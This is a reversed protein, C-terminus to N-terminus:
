ATFWWCQHLMQLSFAFYWFLWGHSFLFIFDWEIKLCAFVIIFLDQQSDCYCTAISSAGMQHGSRMSTRFGILFGFEIEMFVVPM